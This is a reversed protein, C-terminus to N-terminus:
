KEQAGIMAFIFEPTEKVKATATSGDSFNIHTINDQVYIRFIDGTRIIFTTDDEHWTLKLFRKSM